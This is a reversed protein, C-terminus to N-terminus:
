LSQMVHNETFAKIKSLEITAIAIDTLLENEDIEDSPYRSQVAYFNLTGALYRWDTKKIAPIEVELLKILAFLDHTHEVNLGNFVLMAKLWKEMAQQGHFLANELLGFDSNSLESFCLFDNEAKKMWKHVILDKDNM